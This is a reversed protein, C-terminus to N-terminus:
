LRHFPGLTTTPEDSVLRRVRVDDVFWRSGGPLDIVRLGASGASTGASHATPPIIEAGNVTVSSTGTEDTRLDVKTWAGVSVTTSDTDDVIRTAGDVAALDFGASDARTERQDTPTIGTNTGSAVSSASPDTLFWWSEFAVGPEDIGSIVAWPSTDGNSPPAELAHAGSRSADTTAAWSGAAARQGAGVVVMGSPDTVNLHSTALWEASRAVAAVSVHDLSGVFPASGTSTDGITVPITIDGTITGVAATRDVEVGDVYLVLDAGDYTAAVQQWSGTSISGGRAEVTSGGVRLSAVAEGTAGDIALDHVIDSGPASQAVITSDGTLASANVWGSLTLAGQAAQGAPGVLREGGGSLDFGDAAVGSGPTSVDFGGAAALDHRAQSRDLATAGAAVTMVDSFESTSGFTGGGLDETATASIVDGSSLAPVGTITFSEVGTGGHTITNGIIFLEGEGNGSADAGETPNAFLEIRYDGLPVDLDFRVDTEGASSVGLVPYNLLENAGPDLDSGDNDTVGDAALDIGLAGNGSILNGLIAIDDVTAVAATSVGAGVNGGILNGDDVGTGGILVNEVGAAAYVGTQNPISVTGSPDSGIANGQVIDDDDVRIGSDYFGIVNDAVTTNGFSVVGQGSGGIDLAFSPDTGIFNGEIVADVAYIGDLGGIVNPAATSGITVDIVDAGVGFGGAKATLQGNVGILNGLVQAGTAEYLAVGYNDNSHLLNRAAPTVGGIVLDTSEGGTSFVGYNVQDEVIGTVDWGLHLGEIRVNDAGDLAIAESAGGPTGTIAFGRLTTADATEPLLLFANGSPAGTADLEITIRGDLAGPAAVTNPIYGPQTSADIRVGSSITPLASSPTIRWWSHGGNPYDADFDAISADDLATVVPTGLSDTTADDQYYVHGGDSSPIGFEIVDVSATANAEEIAARLTCEAAGESNNGGTRCIGDGPADDGADGSSNVVVTANVELELIWVAGRDLGEDDDRNAGVVLNVGGDGDLDGLGTVSEGFRDNSDLPGTFGGETASVKREDVVTGDEHLMLLYVAGQNGSGGGDDDNIAGVAIDVTGNGDLDGVIAVSSGFRDSGDLAATLEGSADSIKQERDVTGDANMFLIHVAGADVVGDDDNRAGVAIDNIGDGDLDGLGALSTAFQDNDDLSAAFGGTADAIKQGGKVTGDAHMLLVHVAGRDSGFGDDFNAGVAIDPIGDGDLDGIGAVSRGFQDGASLATPLEGSVSSIKQEHEVAGDADLFLVHVAGSGGDDDGPAGVVIENRGDGDLDGVSAVSTGFRDDATLTATLDGFSASIKQESAVTGDADLLLVFVAGADTGGDDDRDAGVVIDNVGDGDLDGIGAISRGFEDDDDLAAVFDGEADSIKQEDVIPTQSRNAAVDLYDPQGDGDSDVADRPEGDGNPDANELSTNIGDGDDDIDLYDPTADGDRDTPDTSPDNDADNDLDEVDDWLGDGDSDPRPDVSDSLESTPGFSTCGADTCETTTLTVDGGGFVDGFSGTFSEVGSGTHVIQAFGLSVEAEDDGAPNRFAEILYDGAPVDLEFDITVATARTAVPFNLLDNAGSDIDDDDNPTRGDDGLDLMLVGSGAISNGLVTADTANAVVLADFSANRVTNSDSPVIGGFRLSGTGNSYVAQAVAAAGGAEDLGFTNGTIVTGSGSSTHVLAANPTFAFRNDVVVTGSAADAIILAEAPPGSSSAGDVGLGFTNGEVRAASVNQYLILGDNSGAAAFRNGDGTGSGGILANSATSYMVIDAAANAAVAGDVDFGLWSGQVTTDAFGSVLGNAPWGSIALGRITVADAVIDLGSGSGLAGGDLGVVPDDVWGPQTTADFVAADSLTPLPDTPPAITWTGAAYGPDSIPLEFSSTQIGDIANSNEIFQRVTGQNARGTDYRLVEGHQGGSNVAPVFYVHRGDSAAGRFGVPDAGVGAGAPDFTSWSGATGFDGTTDLRLVEGHFDTGNNGPSFYVYRGDFAGGVYGDPDTGVANAGPDFATWSTADDFQAATDLRLIEGFSGPGNNAPTFYVHRGDFVAGAYGDADLGVGNAGPDFALWSTTADFAATTDFRLVEGHASSGNNWPVFYLHRGDFVVGEYGDPDNGVGSAGPDFTSWAGVTSFGATTDLRLVEGHQGSGNSAPAFYVYRGDFAAGVYGDPETGVGNSGPDFTSWAGVTSFGATTDLRLVEGHGGGGNDAPAFYVYRGDFAGGRYGDPDVGVGNAGPDYATWSGPAGFDSTTDLRLVEGRKTGGAGGPPFYLYRGDFIARDFADAGVGVGDAGPDYSTWAAVDTFGTLLVEDATNTISVFSFGHELGLIDAGSVVVRTVHEAAPLMPFGDSATPRVGGAVTHTAGSFSWSGDFTATGTPGRTQEAFVEDLVSVGIYGAAPEIDRGDVAVWYTSDGESASLRYTGTDDTVDTDVVVDGASPEGNGDSDHFLWVDVGAVDVGDDFLLGDGDVDEQVLGEVQPSFASLEIAYVAGEVGGGDNTGSAGVLLSIEGDEDQDGLVGLASGFSDGDAFPGTLGGEVDSVKRQRAVSGGSDLYLVYVAGRNSGGDDDGTVGVVLDPVGDGDLDGPGAVSGGFLEFSSFSGSFGGVDGETIKQEGKVTGDANLRLVYVAGESGSGDWTAGVAIDTVSDADIDGLAAVSIGFFDSDAPVGGFGGSTASIKQESKVSGDGNLFLIWVAGRALGGDDDTYAGVALDVNGDGDLDGLNALGSGFGDEGIPGEFGGETESIKRQTKVSGDSNLLLVHVAGGFDGDSNDEGIVGVAIDPVGDGDFDGLSTISSGFRDGAAPAAALGDGGTSVKRDSAVSGDANMFLIWVAGSSAGNDDNEEAGVAVDNIGDGDVDGIGVVAGGFNDAAGPANTLGGSTASIRVEDVVPTIGTGSGADLYDPQGDRDSDVADAPEGDGDPDALEAITASGDGDDDADNDDSDGDADSDDWETHNWLGDGDADALLELELRYIAGRDTGNDDDEPAGVLIEMRGDGDLDGLNTVANGFEDRDDLSGTFRGQTSSFKREWKVTGDDNLTLLYVAGRSTGGDDDLGTGVLLDPVGDGDVDGVGAVSRGWQDFDDIDIQLGGWIQNIRTEDKVTGDANLFLVYVAGRSFGGGADDRIAGVAIDTVGDGDVDGLSTISTGFQDNNSLLATLGGTGRSIEQSSAVTGNPELFLIHVEGRNNGGGDAYGSGVALDVIGDGDLDGLATLSNGFATYAPFSAAFGGTGDSIEQTSRATGDRNMFLIHVEGLDTGGGDAFYAGVALDVIGDGDLDGVPAVANGFRGDNALVPGGGVTHSIKQHTGVSGDSDMFLVYVAGRASGGDDDFPAGVVVDNVGDLNLDGIAAVSSGFADNDILAITNDGAADSEKSVNRVPGGSLEAPEDLYDPRGNHDSDRADRPDGDGNPDANEASTIVGDDDDDDDLYNPTTDGDSDPGPNTSPDGDDDVNADEEDDCLGDGDSDGQCRALGFESTSGYDGGGLDETATASLYVDGPDSATFTFSETGSGTHVVSIAGLLADGAGYGTPPAGSADNAFFEIRYTAAPADLDFDVDIDGGSPTIASVVPFNLLGNAGVDADGLDNPTVGDGGLDIFVNDSDSLLSGLVSNGAGTLVRLAAGDSSDGGVVVNGEGVNVGGFRNDTGSIEVPDRRSAPVLSGDALVGFRSGAIVNRNGSVILQNNLSAGVVVAAGPTGVINDDGGVVLVLDNHDALAVDGYTSVGIWVNQLTNGDGHVEIGSGGLGNGGLVLDAAGSGGITNGDAGITVFVNYDGPSNSTGVADVMLWSGEITHNGTGYLGIMSASSDTSAVNLGRVTASDGTFALTENSTPGVIRIPLIADVPSGDVTTNPAWGPQTTGDLTTPGSIAPLDTAPEISWWSFPSVPYDLDFDAIAADALTTAVPTGLSDATADDRHYRHNPDNNPIAFQITNMSASANTEEIAARLTCEDAGASNVGATDCAGDGPVADSSDGTSNVVAVPAQALDLLYVAGREPGEDDDQPAGVAIDLLGDGDLDGLGAAATGFSDFAQVPGTLGGASASIKYEDTVMGSRDITLLYVAGAWTGGDDDEEAGVLVDPVGDGNIDGVGTVSSGFYDQDDLATVFGGAADSIKQFSSVTGDSNMFLVYAAGRDTGVDDDGPATVVLDEIGDGDIDGPGAVAWGFEDLDDLTATFTGATDSIKQTSKATGNENLEIVYVAGRGGAGGGDDDNPVGIALDPIGDDDLDGIGAVSTGFFDSADFTGSVGGETASLKQEAAVTGADDLFLVYVAGVNFGGDDDFPAGVAMDPVGDGDVDGLATISSGFRDDDDLVSDLGGVADSIKQEDRVSGDADLFLVYVAGRDAGEDDDLPAGVAMDNIGDGDVDGIAAVASGFRDDDGLVEALGGTTDSIKQEAAVPPASPGVEDADLYDPQGDRDSDVADRADGNGDPDANESVTPVTDGDDDADLHNPTGDGDVDPGPNTSPDDDADVNEDEVFDWLGDADSDVREHLDVVFVADGSSGGDLAFPMGVILDLRGDGDLDGLSALSEGLWGGDDVNGSLGPSAGDIRRGSSVTGDVALSVVFFSGESVNSTFDNGAGIALDPRGDGDVDGVGAVATGLWGSDDLPFPFDGSDAAIRQEGKVTGNTNLFLIFVAGRQSGGGEDRVAGVALDEVGDGDIDGIGAVSYGFEEDTSPVHGLGGHGASIEQQAKVTGDDNLFLIHVAGEDFSVPDATNDGVAIDPVGDDDLDGISTVSAGFESYATTSVTLGGVGTSIEQVATAAGTDDLFLVYLTSLSSAGVVLENVGNGDLDGVSAVSEGFSAQNALVPGGNTSSAIKVDNKVTGDANLRLVYVAGRNSGGEDDDPAGIAVDNVGDGDIDGIATVSYGFDDGDDLTASFGVSGETIKQVTSLAGVSPGAEIDLYDPQGDWDTDLADLPDGDANPDANEASTNIGDGDDDADLYNPTTDGDTDPGPSTSPVGDGDLDADEDDDCLGDSDADSCGGLATVALSFESTSGYAGGGLDQTATTAVVDGGSWADIGTLTFPEDGAAGTVTVTEAHILTQGEGYGSASAGDTPNIFVEIRYDGTPLDLDVDLTTSGGSPPTVSPFNLLDNPGPDGDEVDNLTAGDNDLDIGLLTNGWISNGQISTGSGASSGLVVGSDNAEIRNADATSPGGVRNNSGGWSYVGANANGDRTGSVDLGIWNGAVVNNSSGLVIGDGDFGHVALGSVSSGDAGFGFEFGSAGIASAGDLGIVPDDAWGLQTTADITAADTLAPLASSPTLTWTGGSENPDSAPIDFHVTDISASANAEEIGARLTCEDAAESNAGGTDCVGDGPSADSADGTSNVVIALDGVSPTPTFADSFESTGGFAACAGTDCATTTLTVDGGDAVGGFTGTFTQPGSGAHSIQHTGLSVEGEGNGTAHNGSPNRFAEILYDGAPVELSFDISTSDAATIVPFNLGDNSGTDSDPSDNETVGDSDLDIGLSANSYMSNGLITNRDSSVGDVTLGEDGNHAITNGDEAGLGGITVDTSPVVSISVGDESNGLPTSADQGLGILNGVATAGNSSVFLLGNGDNGSIVNNRVVTGTAGNLDVGEDVNGRDLLGTSDTGVWNGEILNSGDTDRIGEGGNASVVNRAAVSPGGVTNGTSDLNIGETGNGAPTSGDLGLGVWNGAVTHGGGGDVDIGLDPFNSVVLGRITSGSGTLTLGDAGAGLSAGDLMVIPDSTWEPQSRGDISMTTSVAPLVSAPTITWTSASHGVETDPLAFRVRGLDADANVEEIAARLTCEDSGDSNTGGTDCLGDGPTADASDGTSNVTVAGGEFGAAWDLSREVMTEFDANWESRAAQGWGGLLRRSPAPTSSYMEDGTDFTILYERGADSDHEALVRAAAPLALAGSNWYSMLVGSTALTLSGSAFQDTPYLTNDVVNVATGTAAALSSSASYVVQAWAASSEVVMPVDLDRVASGAAAAVTNSVYMVDNASAAATFAAGSADDDIATVTWGLGEFFSRRAPDDGVATTGDGTVMVLEGYSPAPPADGAAWDVSREVLTEMQATWSAVDTDGWGGLLRRGAATNAAYLDGGDEIMVLFEHTSDGVQEIPAVAGAPLPQATSDWFGLSEGNSLVTVSGSTFTSVPYQSDDVVNVDTATSSTLASGADYTLGQWAAVGESVIGIDLSAIDSNGAGTTNTLYLVDNAAAATALPGAGADDDVVTVTWGLGQLFTERAADDPDATTGDGTVLLLNGSAGAALERERQREFQSFFVLTACIMSLVVAAVVSRHKASWTPSDTSAPTFRERRVPPTDGPTVSRSASQESSM